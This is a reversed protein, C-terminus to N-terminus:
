KSGARKAAKDFFEYIAKDGMRRANSLEGARTAFIVENTPSVVVAAPIGNRTPNGYSATVDLNRDFNGIDVRVLKFSRAILAASKGTSMALDLARCDPCWNAGFILLVPLRARSAEALTRRIEAKADANEDYPLQAAHATLVAALLAIFPWVRKM